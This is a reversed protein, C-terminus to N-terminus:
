LYYFIAGLVLCFVVGGGAEVAMTQSLYNATTIDGSSLIGLLLFFIVVGIGDNFLSEGAIVTEISKPAGISSSIPRIL